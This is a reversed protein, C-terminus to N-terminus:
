FTIDDAVSGVSSSMLSALEAAQQKAKRKAEIAELMRKQSEGIAFKYNGLTIPDTPQEIGIIHYIYRDHEATGYSNDKRTFPNKKEIGAPVFEALIQIKIGALFQDVYGAEAAEAIFKIFRGFFTNRRMILEVQWYPTQITGIFGLRYTNDPMKQAGIVPSELTLFLNVYENGNQAKRDESQVSTIVTSYVKNRQDSKLNTIIEEFSVPQANAQQVPTQPVVNAQQANPQVDSQIDPAPNTQPNSQANAQANQANADNNVNVNGNIVNNTDM